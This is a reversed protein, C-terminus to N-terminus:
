SNIPFPNNKFVYIEPADFNVYVFWLKGSYICYISGGECSYHYSNVTREENHGLTDIIGLHDYVRHNDRVMKTYDITNIYKEFVYECVIPNKSTKIASLHEFM